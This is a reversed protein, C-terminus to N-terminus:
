ALWVTRVSKKKEVNLRSHELEARLEKLKLEMEDCLQQSEKRIAAAVQILHPERSLGKSMARTQHPQVRAHRKRM